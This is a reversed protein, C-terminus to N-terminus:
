QVDFFKAWEDGTAKATDSTTTDEPNLESNMALVYDQAMKTLQATSAAPFKTALQSQVADMVPKVAPNSFLPNTELLNDSLNQKRIQEAVKIATAKTAEEVAQKVIKDTALTSQLMTSQAVSNMATILAENAGEGGANIAALVEPSIAKSFDAEGIVKQLEKQDLPAPTEPTTSVPKGEADVNPEWMDKFPELASTPTEEAAPAKEGEPPKANPDTPPLNGPQAPTAAPAPTESTGFLKNMINM